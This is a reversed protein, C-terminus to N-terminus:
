LFLAILAVLLLGVLLSVLPRVVQSSISPSDDVRAVSTSTSLPRSQYIQGPVRGGWRREARLYARLGWIWLPSGLVAVDILGTNGHHTDFETVDQLLGLGHTLFLTLAAIGIVTTIFLWLIVHRRRWNPRYGQAVMADNNRDHVGKAVGIGLAILLDDFM